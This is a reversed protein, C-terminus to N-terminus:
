FHLSRLFILRTKETAARAVCMLKELGQLDVPICLELLAERFGEFESVSIPRMLYVTIFAAIQADNYKSASINILIEKAEQKSLKKHEFLKQLVQKM